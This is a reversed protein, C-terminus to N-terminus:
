FRDSERRSAVGFGWRQTGQMCRTLGVSGVGSQGGSECSDSFRKASSRASPYGKGGDVALHLGEFRDEEFGVRLLLHAGRDRCRNGTFEHRM